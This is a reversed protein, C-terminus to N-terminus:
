KKRLLYKNRCWLFSANYLTITQSWMGNKWVTETWDQPRAGILVLHSGSDEFCTRLEASDQQSTERGPPMADVLVVGECDWFVTIMVM